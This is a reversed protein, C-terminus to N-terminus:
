VKIEPIKTTTIHDWMDTYSSLNVMNKWTDVGIKLAGLYAIGYAVAQLGQKAPEMIDGVWGCVGRSEFYPLEHLGTKENFRPSGLKSPHGIYGEKILYYINSKIIKLNTERNIGNVYENIAKKLTAINYHNPGDFITASKHFGVTAMAALTAASILGQALTIEPMARNHTPTLALLGAFLLGGTSSTTTRIM